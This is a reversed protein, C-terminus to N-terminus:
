SCLNKNIDSNNNNNNIKYLKKGKYLGVFILLLIIGKFISSISISWWIGNIGFIQPKSLLIAMPIRALNLVISTVSPIYTRGLGKLVGTITIEICMFLQSYGLIKLYDIGKIIADQENIFARFIIEGFFVLVLTTISGWILAGILGIKSGKNIRDFKYAGYNQGTFTSLASAFGEASMWSISEIQSGVKQVAVAVPGFSAVIVGMAMSILTFLANQIAVPFGLKYLIKFYKLEINRFYKVKFYEIKNKIIYGVFVCSVIIQATITAIGAGNTGLAPIPGFGFILLPDLIINVILGITNIRFPISSNGLGIFISTFVPNIFYFIMGIAVIVLYQRSMTIVETDGLNFIDILQKNFLILIFTYTISLFVNLEISSKIYSKVEKINKEGMSQAVKVEGGIKSFIVFAMALWPYFGATGVAAVSNSGNKGVWMMDILNYAIQIFSTAMIPIAIKVLKEVIGGQTLDIKKEM